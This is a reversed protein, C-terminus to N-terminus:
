AGWRSQRDLESVLDVMSRRAAEIHEDESGMVAILHYMNAIEAGAVPLMEANSAIAHLLLIGGDVDYPESKSVATLLTSYVTPWLRTAM